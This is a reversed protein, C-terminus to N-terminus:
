HNSLVALGLIIKCNSILSTTLVVPKYPIDIAILNLGWLMSKNNRTQSQKNTLLSSANVEKVDQIYSLQCPLATHKCTMYHTRYLLKIVYYSENRVNQIFPKCVTEHSWLTSAKWTGSYTFLCVSTCMWVGGGNQTFWSFNKVACISRAFGKWGCAMGSSSKRM